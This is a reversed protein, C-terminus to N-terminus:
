ANPLVVVVIAMTDNSPCPITCETKNPNCKLFQIKNAILTNREGVDTLAKTLKGKKLKDQLYFHALLGKSYIVMDRNDQDSDVDYYNLKKTNNNTNDFVNNGFNNTLVKTATKIMKETVENSLKVKLLAINNNFLLEINDIKISKEKISMGEEKVQMNMQSNITNEPASTAVECYDNDDDQSPSTRQVTSQLTGLSQFNGQLTEKISFQNMIALTM